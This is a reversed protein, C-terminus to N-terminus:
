KEYSLIGSLGICYCFAVVEAGCFGFCEVGAFGWHAVGYFGWAGAFLQDAIALGGRSLKDSSLYGSLSGTCARFGV